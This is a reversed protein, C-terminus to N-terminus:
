FTKGLWIVQICERYNFFNIMPCIDKLYMNLRGFELPTVGAITTTFAGCGLHQDTVTFLNKWDICPRGGLQEFRKQFNSFSKWFTVLFNSIKKQFAARSKNIKLVPQWTSAVIKSFYNSQFKQVSDLIQEDNQFTVRHLDYNEFIQDVM